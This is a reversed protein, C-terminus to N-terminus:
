CSFFLFLICVKFDQIYLLYSMECLVQVLNKSRKKPPDTELEQPYAHPVDM